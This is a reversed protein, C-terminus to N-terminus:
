VVRSPLKRRDQEEKRGEKREKKRKKEKKNVALDGLERPRDGHFKAVHDSTHKTKYDLDWFKSDEGSFL